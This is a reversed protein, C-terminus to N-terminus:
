AAGADFRAFRYDGHDHLLPTLGGEFLALRDGDLAVVFDADAGFHVFQGPRSSADFLAFAAVADGSAIRDFCAAAEPADSMGVLRTAILTESLPLSVLARGAQESLLMADFVSLPGMESRASRMALVGMEALTRLLERDLGPAFRERARTSGGMDAFLRSFSSVLLEQEDSLNLNM